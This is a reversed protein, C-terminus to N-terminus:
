LPNPTVQVVERKIDDDDDPIFMDEGLNRAKDIKAVIESIKTPDDTQLKWLIWPRAQHHMVKKGDKFLEEGALFTEELAEIDSICHIQDILKNNYLHVLQKQDWKNITKKTKNDYKEIM